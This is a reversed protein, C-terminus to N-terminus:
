VHARGIEPYPLKTIWKNGQKKDKLYFKVSSAYQIYTKAGMNNNTQNLLYPKMRNNIHQNQTKAIFNHYYHKMTTGTGLIDAFNIQDIDTYKEPLYIIKPDSFSNGSQNTFVEIRDSYVYIIDQTGSGDIDAFHIRANDLTGKFVPANKINRKKGFKGYGLSPWVEVSGNKVRVRHMLGDGYFNSFMVYGGTRSLNKCPFGAPTSVRGSSKYGKKGDSYYIRMTNQEVLVVDKKGNGCMSVSEIAKYEGTIRTQFPKFGSWKDNNREFYGNGGSGYIVLQLKGNGELDAFYSFMKENAYQISKGKHYEGEGKPSYYEISTNDNYFLGPLGESDLDVPTFKGGIYGPITKNNTLKLQKFKRSKGTGPKSYSLTTEPMAKFSNNRHGIIQTSILRSLTSSERYTLKLQKVLQRGGAYENDKLFNHFILINRCLRKTRIEFGSNFRSFCDKRTLWPNKEKYTPIKDDSVHEGYDFIVEYAYQTEPNNGYKISKIHRNSGDKKYTYEIINGHRDIEKCLLWEFIKEPRKPDYIRANNQGFFLTENNRTKIQWHSNGPENHKEIVAFGSEVRPVYTHVGANKGKLTQEVGDLAYVDSSNYEPLNKNTKISIKSIGLDFGVGFLGNTVSSRYSLALNPEFGRAKSLPVPINYTYTGYQNSVIVGKTLLIM